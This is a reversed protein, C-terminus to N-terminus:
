EAAAAARAPAIEDLMEALGAAWDAAALGFAAQFRGSNLVSNAPRRAPTPYDATAIPHVVPRAGGRRQSADFIAEAFGRWSIARDGAYHYTGFKDEAGGLMAVAATQCARAVARAPTPCGVQDDVVRLEPRDAGLRLMTKVFNHGQAGFVWATRIIVHRPCAARIAQEGAEKSAGYVGLPAVPDSEVYAGIKSGDFVYDTSIHVLGAGIDACVAALAAVGDRNVAYAQDVDSEAKDVATYAGANIVIKPALDRVARAVAAADALDCGARDRGVVSMGAPWRLGTLERGVQGGAGLILVDTM